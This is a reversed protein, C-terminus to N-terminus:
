SRVWDMLLLHLDRYLHLMDPVTLFIFTTFAKIKFCNNENVEIGNEMNTKIEQMSM